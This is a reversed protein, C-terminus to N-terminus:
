ETLQWLDVLHINNSIKAEFCSNKFGSKSFIYYYKTYNKFLEGQRLLDNLEAVGVQENTYKCEALILQKNGCAVIDIEEM